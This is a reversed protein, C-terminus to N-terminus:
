PVTVIDAVLRLSNYYSLTVEDTLAKTEYDGLALNFIQESGTLVSGDLTLLVASRNPTVAGPLPWYFKALEEDDRQGVQFGKYCTTANKQRISTLNVAM